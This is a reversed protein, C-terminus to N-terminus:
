PHSRATATQAAAVTLNEATIRSRFVGAPRAVV